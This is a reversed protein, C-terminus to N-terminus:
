AVVRYIVSTLDDFNNKATLGKWSGHKHNIGNLFKIAVAYKEWDRLNKNYDDILIDTSRIGGPVADAKNSGCPIFIPTINNRRFYKRFWIKKEKLAYKSDELYASLTYVEFEPDSSLKKIAKLSERYPKLKRFYGKKYLESLELQKYEALVGDMDFFVRTM